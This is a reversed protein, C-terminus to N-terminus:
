KDLPYFLSTKELREFHWPLTFIRITSGLEIGSGEGFKLSVDVALKAGDDLMMLIIYFDILYWKYM